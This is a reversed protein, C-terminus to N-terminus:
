DSMNQIACGVMYRLESIMGRVWTFRISMFTADWGLDSRGRSGKIQNITATDMLWSSGNGSSFFSSLIRIWPEKTIEKLVTWYQDESARWQNEENSIHPKARIFGKYCCIRQNSNFTLCRLPDNAAGNRGWPRKECIRFMYRRAEEFQFTSM